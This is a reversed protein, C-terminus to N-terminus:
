ALQRASSTAKDYASALTKKVTDAAFRNLVRDQGAVGWALRHFRHTAVETLGESLEHARREVLLGTSRHVLAEDTGSTRLAIVPRSRHMAVLAALGNSPDGRTGILALAGDVLDITRQVSVRGCLEIRQHVGRRLARRYLRARDLDDRDSPSAIILRVHPDIVLARILEEQVWEDRPAGSLGLFYRGGPAEDVAAGDVAPGAQSCDQAAILAADPSILRRDQPVGFNKILQADDTTPAILMEAASMVVPWLISAPSNAFAVPSQARVVVPAGTHRRAALAVAAAWLDLAHVVDVRGHQDVLAEAAQTVDARWDAGLSGTLTMTAPHAGVATLADSVVNLTAPPAAAAPVRALLDQHSRMVLAKM